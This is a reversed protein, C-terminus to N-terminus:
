ERGFDVRFTGRARRPREYGVRIGGRGREVRSHSAWRLASHTHGGVWRICVMDMICSGESGGYGIGQRGRGQSDAEGEAGSGAEGRGGQGLEGDRHAHGWMGVCVVGGFNWVHRHPITPDHRTREHGDERTCRARSLTASRAHSHPSTRSLCAEGEADGFAYSAATMYAAWVFAARVGAREAEGGRRAKLAATHIHCTYRV